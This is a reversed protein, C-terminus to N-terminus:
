ARARGLAAAPLLWCWPRGSRTEGMGSSFRECRRSDCHRPSMGRAKHILPNPPCKVYYGNHPRNEPSTIWLSRRPLPPHDLPLASPGFPFGDAAGGMQRKGLKGSEGKTSEGQQMERLVARM